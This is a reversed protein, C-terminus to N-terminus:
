ILPYIILVGLALWGLFGLVILVEVVIFILITKQDKLFLQINGVIEAILNTTPVVWAAGCRYCNQSQSENVAGCQSCDKPEIRRLWVYDPQLKLLQNEPSQQFSKYILAFLAVAAVWILGIVFYVIEGIIVAIEDGPDKRSM